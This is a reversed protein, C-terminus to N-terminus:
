LCVSESTVTSYVQSEATNLDSHNTVEESHIPTSVHASTDTTTFPAIVTTQNASFCTTTTRNSTQLLPLSTSPSISQILGLDPTSNLDASSENLGTLFAKVHIFHDYQTPVEAVEAVDTSGDTNSILQSFESRELSNEQHNIHQTM